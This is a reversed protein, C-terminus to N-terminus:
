LNLTAVGHENVSGLPGITLNRPAVNVVQQLSVAEVAAGHNDVVRVTVHAFDTPTGTPDDDLFQHTTGFLRDGTSLTFSELPTGDGWDIQVTHTDGLDPDTFALLLEAVGNELIPGRPDFLLDSPATNGAVVSAAPGADTQSDSSLAATQVYDEGAGVADLAVLPAAGDLLRRPELVRPQLRPALLLAPQPRGGLLETWSRRWAAWRRAVRSGTQLNHRLHSM